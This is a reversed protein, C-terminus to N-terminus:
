RRRRGGPNVDWVVRGDSDTALNGAAEDRASRLADACERKLRTKWEADANPNWRARLSWDVILVTLALATATGVAWPWSPARRAAGHMVFWAWVCVVAGLGAIWGLALRLPRRRLRRAEPIMHAQLWWCSPCLVVGVARELSARANQDAREAATRRAGENDLWLLSLARGEARCTLDYTFRTACRECVVLKRATAQVTATFTTGIPIGM